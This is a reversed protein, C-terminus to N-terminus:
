EPGQFLFLIREVPVVCELTCIQAEQTIVQQPYACFLRSKKGQVTAEELLEV